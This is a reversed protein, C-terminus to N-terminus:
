EELLVIITKKFTDVNLKNILLGLFYGRAKLIMYGLIQKIDNAFNQVEVDLRFM